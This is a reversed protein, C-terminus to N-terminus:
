LQADGASRGLTWNWRRIDVRAFVGEVVYPDTAMFREVAARDQAEFVLLSGCMSEGDDQMLPGAAVARCDSREERLHKRHLERVRDRIPGSQPGDLGHFAFLPM